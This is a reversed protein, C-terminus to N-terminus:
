GKIYENEVPQQQIISLIQPIWQFVFISLNIIQILKSFLGDKVFNLNKWFNWYNNIIASGGEIIWNIKEDGGFIKKDM